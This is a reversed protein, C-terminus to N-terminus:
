IRNVAGVAVADSFAGRVIAMAGDMKAQRTNIMTITRKGPTTASRVECNRAALVRDLKKSDVIQRADIIIAAIENTTNM